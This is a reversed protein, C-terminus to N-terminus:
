QQRRRPAVCGRALHGPQQCNFCIVSNPHRQPRQVTPFRGQPKLPPRDLRAELKELKEALVGIITSLKDEKSPLMTASVSAEDGTASAIRSTAFHAETQIVLTVAEDLTKPTKQKVAFPVQGETIGM